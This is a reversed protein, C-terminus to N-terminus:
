QNDPRTTRDNIEKFLEYNQKIFTNGPELEIAKEYAARAKDLEGEHEYAIGLNNHAAAYTPDIQVAREWRYIAERWLGRQAVAIGFEVQKKADDRADAAPRDARDAKAHAASQGDEGRDIHRLHMGDHVPIAQRGGLGAVGPRDPDGHLTVERQVVGEKGDGLHIRQLFTQLFRLHRVLEVAVVGAVGEGVPVSRRHVVFRGGLFIRDLKAIAHLDCSRVGVFAVPRDDEEPGEPQHVQHALLLPVFVLLNKIWQQPRLEQLLSRATRLWVPAAQSRAELIQREEAKHAHTM